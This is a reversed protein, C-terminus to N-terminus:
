GRIAASAMILTYWPAGISLETLNRIVQDSQEQDRSRRRRQFVQKGFLQNESILQIKGPITLGLELPYITIGISDDSKLFESLDETVKPKLSIRGLLELLAERRGASEACFLIRESTEKLFAELNALPQSHQANITLEPPTASDLNYRGAKTELTDSQLQVRRAPKLTSFLDQSSLFLQQPPLIPKEIDYRRDEYRNCM